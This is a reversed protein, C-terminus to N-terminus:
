ISSIDPNPSAFALFQPDEEMIAMQKKDLTVWAEIGMGRHTEVLVTFNRFTPGVNGVVGIWIAEGWGFDVEGVINTWSTFSYIEPESSYVFEMGEDLYKSFAGLGKLLDCLQDTTEAEETPNNVATVFWLINGISNDAM